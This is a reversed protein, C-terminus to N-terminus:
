IHPWDSRSRDLMLTFGVNIVFWVTVNVIIVAIFEEQKFNCSFYCIFDNLCFKYIFFFFLLLNSPNFWRVMFFVLISFGNSTSNNLFPQISTM